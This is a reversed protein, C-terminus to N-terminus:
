SRMEIVPTWREKRRAARAAADEGDYDAPLLPFDDPPPPRFANANTTMWMKGRDSLLAGIYVGCCGCLLFDATKLGFRYRVLMESDRVLVRVSGRPDSVARVGHKRCFSCICARLGLEELARSAEFVFSLNGCHCGGEFRHPLGAM